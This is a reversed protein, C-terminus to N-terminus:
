SPAYAINPTWILPANTGDHIGQYQLTTEAAATGSASFPNDFYVLGAMTLKAHVTANNAEFTARNKRKKFWVTTNAHTAEKGLLPIGTSNDLKRPNRATITAAPRAKRRGARDPWVGGAQPESETKEVNFSLNFNRMDEWVIGACTIASVVFASFDIGTPLTAAYSYAFPANTGDTIADIECALQADDRRTGTLSVPVMLGLDMLYSLHEDSDPDGSVCDGKAEGYFTVGPKGEATNICIGNQPIAALALGISKTTWQPRPAQFSIAGFSDFMAGSDDRVTEVNLPMGMQTIGGLKVASSTEVTHIVVSHAGFEM